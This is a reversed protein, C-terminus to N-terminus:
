RRAETWPSRRARVFLFEEVYVLGFLRDLASRRSGDVLMWAKAAVGLAAVVVSAAILARELAGFDGEDRGAYAFYANLVALAVLFALVARPLTRRWSPPAGTEERVLEIDAARMGLTAGQAWYYTFYAVIPAAAILQAIVILTVGLIVGPEGADLSALGVGQFIGGVISAILFVVWCLVWDIAGAALRRRLRPYMASYSGDPAIYM